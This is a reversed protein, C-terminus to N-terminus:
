HSFHKGQLFSSRRKTGLFWIFFDTYPFMSIIGSIPFQLCASRQPKSVALLCAHSSLGLCTLSGTEFVLYTADLSHYQPQGRTEERGQGGVCVRSFSTLNNQLLKSHSCLLPQGLDIWIVQPLVLQERARRGDM